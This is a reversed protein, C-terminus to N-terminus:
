SSVTSFYYLVILSYLLIVPSDLQITPKTSSFSKTFLSWVAVLSNHSCMEEHSKQCYGVAICGGTRNWSISSVIMNKKEEKENAEHTLTFATEIDENPKYIEKNMDILIQILTSSFISTLEFTQKM